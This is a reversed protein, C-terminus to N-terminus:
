PCPVGLSLANLGGSELIGELSAEVKEPEARGLGAKYREIFEAESLGLDRIQEELTPLPELGFLRIADETTTRPDVLEDWHRRVLTAVEEGPRELLQGAYHAEATGWEVNSERAFPWDNFYINPSGLDIAPGTDWGEYMRIGYPQDDLWSRLANGAGTTSRGALWLAVVTRAQGISTCPGQSKIDGVRPLEANPELERRELRAAYEEVEDANWRAVFTQEASPLGVAWSAVRSALSMESIGAEFRTGWLTGTHITGPDASPQRFSEEYINGFRQSITLGRPTSVFDQLVGTVVTRWREMWPAYARYACYRVGDHAECILPERTAVQEADFIRERGQPRTQGWVGTAVVAIAALAAAVRGFRPGHRLRAAALVLAALGTLYVLHWGAPRFVLERANAEDFNIWFAGWRLPSGVDGAQYLQTRQMLYLQIGGLAILGVSGAIISPVVRGILVGCAGLFLVMMPGSALENVSPSWVGGILKLYGVEAATLVASAAVPYALALLHASTRSLASMPQADLLEETGTRRARTAAVNSALYAAVALPLIAMTIWSDDRHMVPARSWTVFVILAVSLLVGFLFIPRRLIIRGEVHALAVTARWRPGPRSEVEIRRAETASSM